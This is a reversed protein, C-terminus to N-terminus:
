DQGQHHWICGWRAVKSLRRREEVLDQSLQSALIVADSETCAISSASPGQLTQGNTTRSLRCPSQMMINGNEHNQTEQTRSRPSQPTIGSCVSLNSLRRESAPDKGLDPVQSLSSKRSSNITRSSTSIREVRGM